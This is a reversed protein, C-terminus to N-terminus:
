CRSRGSRCCTSARGPQILQVGFGILFRQIQVDLREAEGLSEQGTITQMSPNM